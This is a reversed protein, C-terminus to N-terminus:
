IVVEGALNDNFGDFEPKLGDFGEISGAPNGVLVHPQRIDEVGVVFGEDPLNAIEVEVFLFVGSLRLVAEGPLLVTGNHSVFM